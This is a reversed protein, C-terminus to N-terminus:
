ELVWGVGVCQVVGGSQRVKEMTRKGGDKYVVHTIGIKSTTSEGEMANNPNWPWSKVCRAGMQTLLEVFVTSADAGESTHVDVFVVAGQLLTPNLDRRPTRAPTGIASWIDSKAPTVPPQEENEDQEMLDDRSSEKTPSNAIANASKGLNTPRKPPLRSVSASRPKIPRPTSDDAPKLPVKTTTNFTRMASPRVPTVPPQVAGNALLAPDIPVANEDGYEQSADSISDDHAPQESIVEMQEPELLSMESAEAALEIDEETISMDGFSQDAFAVGIDNELAAMMEFEMGDQAEARVRMEDEFFTHKAPSGSVSSDAAEGTKSPSDAKREDFQRSLPTFSLKTGRSMAKIARSANKIASSPLAGRPTKSTAPTPTALLDAFTFTADEQSKLPTKGSAALEDESEDNNKQDASAEQSQADVDMADETAAKENAAVLEPEPISQYQDDDVVPELQEPLPAKIPSSRDQLAPDAHRPLVASLRGPFELQAPSEISQEDEEQSMEVDESEVQEDLGVSEAAPEVQEPEEQSSEQEKEEQQEIVEEDHGHSEHQEEEAPDEIAPKEVSPEETAPEESALEGVTTEETALEQSTPEEVAPEETSLEETTSEESDSDEAISEEAIPEEVVTEELTLQEVRAKFPSMPRKAPSKLFSLKTPSRLQEQDQSPASLAMIPMQPRKAPSQLVSTKLSSSQAADSEGTKPFLLSPVFAGDGRKAPSKMADKFPTSPPRKAPSAFVPGGALEDLDDNDNHADASEQVAPASIDMKRHPKVPSRMMPKVPPKDYGALEDDSDSSARSLPRNPADKKPSLPAPKEKKDTTSATRASARTARSGAAAATKRVPKARLGGTTSETEAKSTKAKSAVTTKTIKAAPAPMLNEKEPEQFSVSKKVAAGVRAAPRSINSKLGPTPETTPETCITGAAKKISAAPRGRTAKKVVPESEQQVDDAPSARKTRTRTAKVPEPKPDDVVKKARGRTPRPAAAVEPETEAEPESEAETVIVKRPRGRPRTPKTVTNNNNDEPQPQSEEDNEHDDDTRTKRKRTAAAAARAASAKTAGTASTVSKTRKKAVSASSSSSADATTAKAARARTIRKPPSAIDM